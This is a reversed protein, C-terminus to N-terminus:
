GRVGRAAQGADGKSAAAEGSVRSSVFGSLIQAFLSFQQRLSLLGYDDAGQPTASLGRPGTTTGQGM